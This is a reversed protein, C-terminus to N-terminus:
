VCIKNGLHALVDVLAIIRLTRPYCYSSFDRLVWPALVIAFKRPALVAGRLIETMMAFTVVSTRFTRIGFEKTLM